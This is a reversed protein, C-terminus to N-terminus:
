RQHIYGCLVTRVAAATQHASHRPQVRWRRAHSRYCCLACRWSKWTSAQAQRSADAGCACSARRKSLSMNTYPVQKGRTDARVESVLHTTLSLLPPPAASEEPALFSLLAATFPSNAPARTSADLAVDGAATAFAVLTGVGDGQAPPVAAMAALGRGM